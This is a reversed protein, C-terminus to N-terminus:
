AWKGVVEFYDPGNDIPDGDLTSDNGAPIIEDIADHLEYWGMGSCGDAFAGEGQTHCYDRLQELLHKVGVRRFVQALSPDVVPPQHRAPSAGPQAARTTVQFVDGM